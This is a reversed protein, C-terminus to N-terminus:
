RQHWYLNTRWLRNAFAAIEKDLNKDAKEKFETKYDEGKELIFKLAKSSISKTM